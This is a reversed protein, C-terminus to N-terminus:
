APKSVAAAHFVDLREKYPPHGFFASGSVLVDAGAALLAATNDPTVGGDVQIRFSLGRERRLASLARIKDLCFPIFSQGGFGPNVTMILVMDLQPLLWEVASLPTAPNLAVAPAAGLRAIEAVARELHVTAEAHVCILDSGAARFEALYREPREIMLHTDFYLRSTKRMAAILPPGFTINPVFQGDMVDLHVWSLGAAELAALEDALRAFDSSLLSPSLIFPPTM